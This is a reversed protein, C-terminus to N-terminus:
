AAFAIADGFDVGAAVDGILERFEFGFGAEIRQVALEALVAAHLADEFHEFDGVRM